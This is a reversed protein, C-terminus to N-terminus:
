VDGQKKKRGQDGKALSGPGLRRRAPRRGSGLEGEAAFWAEEDGDTVDLRRLGV